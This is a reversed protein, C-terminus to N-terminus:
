IQNKLGNEYKLYKKSIEDNMESILIDSKKKEDLLEKMFLEKENPDTIKNYNYIRKIEKKKEETILQILKNSLQVKYENLKKEIKIKKEIKDNLYTESNYNNTNNQNKVKYTKLNPSNSKNIKKYKNEIWKLTINKESSNSTNPRKKNIKQQINKINKKSNISTNPRKINLKKKNNKNQNTNKKKKINDLKKTNNKNETLGFTFFKNDNNKEKLDFSMTRKNEELETDNKINFDRKKYRNSETNIRRFDRQSNLFDQHKKEENKLKIEIAKRKEESKAIEKREEEDLEKLRNLLSNIKVNNPFMKIINKIMKNDINKKHFMKKFEKDYEEKKKIIDDRIKRKRESILQKQLTFNELKERKNKMLKLKNEKEMKNKTNLVKINNQKDINKQNNKERKTLKEKEINEM